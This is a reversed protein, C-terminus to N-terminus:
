SINSHIVPSAITSHFEMRAANRARHTRRTADAATTFYRLNKDYHLASFNLGLTLSGYPQEWVKWYTGATGDIRKNNPVNEGTIYQYGLGAPL